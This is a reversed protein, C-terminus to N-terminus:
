KRRGHGPIRSALAPIERWAIQRRLMLPKLPPDRVATQGTVASSDPSALAAFVSVLGNWKQFLRNTALATVPWAPWMDIKPTGCPRMATHFVRHQTQRLQGGFPPIGDATLAMQLAFLSDQPRPTRFKIELRTISYVVDPDYKSFSGSQIRDSSVLCDTLDFLQHQAPAAINLPIPQTTNVAVIRM